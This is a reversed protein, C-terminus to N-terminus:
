MLLKSTDTVTIQRTILHPKLEPDVNLVRQCMEAHERKNFDFELSARFLLSLHFLEHFHNNKCLPCSYLALSCLM